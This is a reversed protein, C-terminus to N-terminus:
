VSKFQVWPEPKRSETAAAGVAAPVVKAMALMGASWLAVARVLVM